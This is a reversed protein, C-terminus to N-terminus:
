HALWKNNCLTPYYMQLNLFNYVILYADTRLTGM